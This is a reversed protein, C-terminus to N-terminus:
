TKEDISVFTGKQSTRTKHEKGTECSTERQERELICRLPCCKQKRRGHQEGKCRTTVNRPTRNGGGSQASYRTVLEWRKRERFKEARVQLGGLVGTAAGSLGEGGRSPERKRGWGSVPWCGGM